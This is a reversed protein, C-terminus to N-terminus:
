KGLCFQSFIKQIVDDTVKDGTIESLYEYTSHLDIAWCDEPMGMDISEVVEKAAIFAKELSQKHRINHIVTENDLEVNGHMFLQKIEDELLDLGEFQTASTEIVTMKQLHERLHERKVQKNLDSKNMLIIVKQHSILEM